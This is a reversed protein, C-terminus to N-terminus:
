KVKPHSHDDDSDGHSHSIGFYTIIKEILYFAMIGVIVGLSVLVPKLKEEEEEEHAHGGDHDHEEEDGHGHDHIGFSHPILHFLSDGLLSGIAFAVM